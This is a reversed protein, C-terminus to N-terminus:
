APLKLSYAYLVMDVTCVDPYGGLSLKPPGKMFWRVEGSLEAIFSALEIDYGEYIAPPISVRVLTTYARDAANLLAEGETTDINDFGLELTARSPTACWLRSEKIGSETVTETIVYTPAIFKRRSPVISPLPIISNPITRSWGNGIIVAGSAARLIGKSIRLIVPPSSIYIPAAEAKSKKRAYGYASPGGVAVWGPKLLRGKALPNGIRISGSAALM